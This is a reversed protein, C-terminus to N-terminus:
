SLKRLRVNDYMYLPTGKTELIDIRNTYRKNMTDVVTYEGNKDGANTIAVKDGYDFDGGWRNLMDRSMAIWKHESAENPNITYMGATVLPDDDCQSVEANYMTATVNYTPEAVKDAFDAVAVSDFDSSFDFDSVFDPNDVAVEVADENSNVMAKLDFASGIMLLAFTFILLKKM